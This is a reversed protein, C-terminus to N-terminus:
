HKIVLKLESLKKGDSIKVFYNGDRLNNVPITFRNGSSTGIYHLRGNFDLIKVTYIVNADIIAEAENLGSKSVLNLTVSESAPNPSLIFMREGEYIEINTFEYDTYGCTNYARTVVQYCCYADYFAIDTYDYYPRVDNDLLPNLIWEYEAQSLPDRQPHAYFTYTNYVYGEEPGSVYYLNPIGSWVNYQSVSIINYSCPTSLTAKVWGSGSGTSVFTCPNATNDSTSLNSSSSWTITNGTPVYNLTFNGGSSCVLTPGSIYPLPSPLTGITFKKVGKITTLSFPSTIEVIVNGVTYPPTTNLGTVSGIYNGSACVYYDGSWSYSAGNINLTTINTATGKPINNDGLMKITYYAMSSTDYPCEWVKHKVLPGWGWKSIVWTQDDTTVASHGGSNPYFIKRFPENVKSSSVYAASDGSYYHSVNGPQYINVKAGGDSFHWAYGHCNVLCSSTDIIVATWLSDEITEQWLSDASLREPISYDYEYVVTAGVIVGTPTKIITDTCPPQGTAFKVINTFLIIIFIKRM